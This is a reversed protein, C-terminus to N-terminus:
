KVEGLKAKWTNPDYYFNYFVTTYIDKWDWGLGESDRPKIYDLKSKGQARTYVKGDQIFQYCGASKFICKCNKYDMEYDGINQGMKITGNKYKILDRFVNLNSKNTKQFWIGDVNFAIVRFGNDELHGAMIMLRENNDLIADHALYDYKFRIQASRMMGTTYNLISKFIPNEKRFEYFKKIVKSFEPHTNILGAPYSSHFDIHYCNDLEVNKYEEMVMSRPGCNKSGLPHNRLRNAKAEAIKTKVEEDTYNRAYSELDIGAKTCEAKFITLCRRGSTDKDKRENLQFRYQKDLILFLDAGTQNDRIYYSGYHFKKRHRSINGSKTLSAKVIIGEDVLPKLISVLDNWNQLQEEIHPHFVTVPIKKSNFDTREFNEHEFKLKELFNELNRLKEFTNM